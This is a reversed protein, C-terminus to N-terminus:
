ERGELIATAERVAGPMRRAVEALDVDMAKVKGAAVDRVSWAVFKRDLLKAEVESSLLYDILQKAADAHKAGAVLGVTTPIVLTGFASQDPLLAKINGDNAQAAAVDDNDTLGATVTGDAVFQAVVSNGGLLKVGNSRLDRFYKRAVDEGWLVYLAAVHGGTTGASPRAMAIRDKLAPSVLDYVSTVAPAGASASSVAVVRARLGNGAWRHQPDKFQAPVEKVSPSEYTALLGEQGLNITHFPENGWFVDARPNNKEARIREALGVSKTAEADTVLVVKIGTKQEFDKVIAAAHPQDVSTYLVVENRASDAGDCGFFFVASVILGCIFASSRLYSLLLKARSKDANM